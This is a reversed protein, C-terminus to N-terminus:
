LKVRAKVSKAGTFRALCGTSLLGLLQDVTHLVIGPLLYVVASSYHLLLCVLMPIYLHHVYWFLEFFRRRFVDISFVTMVLMLILGVLGYVNQGLAVIEDDSCGADGNCAWAVIARKM